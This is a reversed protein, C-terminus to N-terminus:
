FIKLKHLVYIILGWFVIWDTVLKIRTMTDSSDFCFLLSFLMCFAVLMTIIISLVRKM